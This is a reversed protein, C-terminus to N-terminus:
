VVALRIGVFCLQFFEPHRQAFRVSSCQIGASQDYRRCQVDQSTSLRVIRAMLSMPMGSGPTTAMTM